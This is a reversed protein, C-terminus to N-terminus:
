RLQDGRVGGGKATPVKRPKNSIRLANQPNNMEGGFLETNNMEGRYWM